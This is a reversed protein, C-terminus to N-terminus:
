FVSQGGHALSDIALFALTYGALSIGFLAIVALRGRWRVMSRLSAPKRNHAVSSVQAFSPNDAVIRSPQM